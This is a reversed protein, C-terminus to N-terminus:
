IKMRMTFAIVQNQQAIIFDKNHGYFLIQGPIEVRKYSNETPTILFIEENPDYDLM